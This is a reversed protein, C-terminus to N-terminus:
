VIANQVSALASWSRLADFCEKSMGRYSLISPSVIKTGPVISARQCAGANEFCAEIVHRDFDPEFRGLYNFSEVAMRKLREDADPYFHAEEHSLSKKVEAVAIKGHGIRLAEAVACNDGSLGIVPVGCQRSLLTSLTAEGIEDGDLSVKTFSTDWTHAMVGGSAAHGHYGLLIVGAVDQNQVGEVMGWEMRTGGILSFPATDSPHLNTGFWHGDVVVAQHGAKQVEALVLRLDHRLAACGQAYLPHTPTVQAWCSLGSLGEMDTSVLIFSM